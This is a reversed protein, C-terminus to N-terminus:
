NRLMQGIRADKQKWLDNLWSQFRRRVADDQFYNGKKLDEPIESVVVDVRVTRARGCFFDWLGPVGEPYAITVDILLKMVDGMAYIATATGGSKPKLLHSFPSQQRRHKEATFRTGEVFNFISVPMERFKECSRRTTELDRGRLHPHKELFPKSYRKMIPFDLAWLCIGIFPVWLLEKKIFFKYPPIKGVFVKALVIIDVWTQHNSILLCWQRICIGEAGRVDWNIRSTLRHTMDACRVWLDGLANLVRSCPRRLARVPILKFVAVAMFVVFIAVTFIVYLSFTVAGRVPAPLFALM